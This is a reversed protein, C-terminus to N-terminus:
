KKRRKIDFEVCAVLLFILGEVDKNTDKYIEKFRSMFEKCDIKSMLFDSLLIAVPRIEEKPQNQKIVKNLLKNNNVLM